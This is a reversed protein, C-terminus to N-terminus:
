GGAAPGGQRRYAVLSEGGPAPLQVWDWQGAPLAIEAPGCQGGGARHGSSWRGKEGAGVGAEALRLALRVPGRQKAAKYVPRPGRALFNSGVLSLDRIDM